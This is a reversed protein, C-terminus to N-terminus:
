VTGVICYLVLVLAWDSDDTADLQTVAYKAANIVSPDEEDADTVGGLIEYEQDQTRESLGSARQDGAMGRGAEALLRAARQSLPRGLGSEPRAEVALSLVALLAFLRLFMATLALPDFITEFDSIYSRIIQM